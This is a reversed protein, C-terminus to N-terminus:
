CYDLRPRLIWEAWLQFAPRTPLSDAAGQFVGRILAKDQETSRRRYEEISFARTAGIQVLRPLHQLGGPAARDWEDVYVALDLVRLEPMAGAEFTLYSVMGCDFSFRKVGPFATSGGVVIREKPIGLIQLGLILLRPLQTGMIVVDEQLIQKVSIQLECLNHLHGIWKPVRSFTWDRLDLQELNRFPPSLSSLADACYGIDFSRRTVLQRLNHLKELSAALAAMWAAEVLPACRKPLWFELDSLATLEGLGIINELSDMPPLTFGRLTRLMKFMGIGDSLRTLEPVVLHSLRPADVIGFEYDGRISIRSFDLTELFRLGKIQRPLVIDRAFESTVLLYRLQSLRNINTLDIDVGAPPLDLLLVRVFKLELLLPLPVSKLCTGSLAELALLPLGVFSRTKGVQSLKQTMM